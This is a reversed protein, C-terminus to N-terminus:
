STKAKMQFVVDLVGVLTYPKVSSSINTISITATFVRNSLVSVYANIAAIETSNLNLQYPTTEYDAPKVNNLQKEFLLNGSDDKLTVTIDGSLDAPIVSDAVTRFEARVYEIQQIKNEYRQYTSSNSLDFTESKTYSTQSSSIHFEQSIPINETLSNLADLICGSFLFPVAFAIIILTHTLYKKM